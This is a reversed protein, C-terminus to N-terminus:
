FINKTRTLFWIHRDSLFCALFCAVVQGVLSTGYGIGILQHRTATEQRGADIGIVKMTKRVITYKM